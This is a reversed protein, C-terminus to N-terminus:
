TSPSALLPTCASEARHSGRRFFGFATLKTGPPLKEDLLQSVGTFSQRLSERFSLRALSTNEANLQSTMAQWIAASILLPSLLIELLVQQVSSHHQHLQDTEAEPHSLFYAGDVLLENLGCLIAVKLPSIVGLRDNAAGECIVHALLIFFSATTMLINAILRFPNLMQLVNEKQSCQQLLRKIDMADWWKQYDAEILRTVTELTKMCAFTFEAMCKAAVCLLGVSLATWGTVGLQAVGLPLLSWLTATMAISGFVTLGVLVAGLLVWGARRLQGHWYHEDAKLMWLAGISQWYDSSIDKVFLNTFTRHMLLMCGLAVSVSLALVLVPPCVLGLNVTVEVLAAPMVLASCVGALVSLVTSARLYWLKRTLLAVQDAESLGEAHVVSKYARAMRLRALGDPGLLRLEGIGKFIEEGYIRGQVVGTLVFGTAIALMAPSIAAIGAASLLGSGTVVGATLVASLTYRGYQVLSREFRRRKDSKMTSNSAAISALWEERVRVFHPNRFFDLAKANVWGPYGANSFVSGINSKVDKEPFSQSQTTMDIM